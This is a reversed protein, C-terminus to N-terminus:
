AVIDFSGAMAARPNVTQTTGGVCVDVGRPLAEVAVRGDPHYVLNVGLQQYLETCDDADAEALVPLM